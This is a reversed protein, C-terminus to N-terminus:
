WYTASKKVEAVYEKNNWHLWMKLFLSLTNKSWFFLFIHSRMSTTQLMDDDKTFIVNLLCVSLWASHSSLKWHWLKNSCVCRAVLTTKVRAFSHSQSISLHLGEGGGGQNAKLKQCFVTIIPKLSWCPLICVNNLSSDYPSVVWQLVKQCLHFQRCRASCKAILSRIGASFYLM